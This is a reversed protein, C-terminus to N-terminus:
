KLPPPPPSYSGNAQQMLHQVQIELLNCEFLKEQYVREAINLQMKLQEMHKTFRRNTSALQVVAMQAQHRLENNQRLVENRHKRLQTFQRTLTSYQAALDNYKTEIDEPTEVMDDEADVRNGWSRSDENEAACASSNENTNKVKGQLQVVTEEAFALHDKASNYKERMEKMQSEINCKENGIDSIHKQLETREKQLVANKLSETHLNRRVEELSKENEKLRRDRVQREKETEEKLVKLTAELEKLKTVLSLNEKEADLSRKDLTDLKEGIAALCEDAKVALSRNLGGKEMSLKGRLQTIHSKFDDELTCFEIKNKKLESETKSLKEEYYVVKARAIDQEEDLKQELSTVGSKALDRQKRLSELEEEFYRKKSLVDSLLRNTDEVLKSNEFCKNEMELYEEHNQVTYDEMEEIRNNCNKLQEELGKTKDKETKLDAKMEEIFSNAIRLSHKLKSVEKDAEKLLRTLNEKEKQVELLSTESMKNVLMICEEITDNDDVLEFVEFVEDDVISVEKVPDM